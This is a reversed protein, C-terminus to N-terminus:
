FLSGVDANVGKGARVCNRGQAKARYLAEDAMRFLDRSSTTNLGASIVGMSCTVQGVKSFHHREIDERLVEADQATLDESPWPAATVINPLLLTAALILSSGPRWM